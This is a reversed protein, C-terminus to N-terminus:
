FKTRVSTTKLRDDLTKTPVNSSKSPVATPVAADDNSTVQLENFFQGEPGVLKAVTRGATLRSELTPVRGFILVNMGSVSIEGNNLEAVRPPFWKLVSDFWPTVVIGSQIGLKDEVKSQGYIERARALVTQHAAENPLMGRLIARGDVVKLSLTVPILVDGKALVRQAPIKAALDGSAFSQYFEIYFRSALSLALVVLFAGIGLALVVRENVHQLRTLLSNGAAPKFMLDM